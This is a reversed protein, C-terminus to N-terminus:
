WNFPESWGKPESQQTIQVLKEVYIMVLPPGCSSLPKLKWTDKTQNWVEIIQTKKTKKKPPYGNIQTKCYNAWSVKWSNLTKKPSTTNRGLWTIVAILVSM